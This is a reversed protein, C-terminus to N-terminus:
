NAQAANPQVDTTPPQAERITPAAPPRLPAVNAPHANPPLRQDHLDRRLEAVQNQLKPVAELLQPHNTSQDNPVPAASPAVTQARSGTAAFFLMGLAAGIVHVSSRRRSVRQASFSFPNGAASPM